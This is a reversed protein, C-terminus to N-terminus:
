KGRAPFEWGTIDGPYFWAHVVEPSNAKGEALRVETKEPISSASIPITTLLAVLHTEDQNMVEVVNRDNNLTKFVYTGAPLAKNEIQVPASFTITTQNDNFGSASLPTVAAAALLTAVASLSFIRARDSM